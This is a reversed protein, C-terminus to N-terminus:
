DLRSVGSRGCRIARSSRAYRQLVDWIERRDILKRLKSDLAADM